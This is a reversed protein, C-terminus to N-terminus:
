MSARLPLSNVIFSHTRNCADTNYNQLPVEACQSTKESNNSPVFHDAARSDKFIHLASRKNRKVYYRNQSPHNNSLLNLYLSFSARSISLTETLPIHYFISLLSFLRTSSGFLACFSFFFSLASLM